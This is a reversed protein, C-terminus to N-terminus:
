VSVSHRALVESCIASFRDTVADIAFHRRAAARARESITGGDAVVRRLAAAMAGAVSEADYRAFFFGAEGAYDATGNTPGLVVPRGAALAEAVSFGFNENESPQVLVHTEGFLEAIRARPLVGDFSVGADRGHREVLDAASPDSALNGVIRARARPHDKKLLRFADLFLDLRKRPVARGLWLFTVEDDGPRLAPVNAFQDLDIPYALTRLGDPDAGFRAWEDRAWRSGCLYVDTSRLSARAVLARYLYFLQVAAYRLAGQHRMARERVVRSRLASAETHPPSQPWSLAPLSSPWVAQADTCLLVDYKARQHESEIQRVAEILYGVHALQSVAALPYPTPLSNGFHWARQLADVRMPFFRYGPYRELSKPETFGRIGFFDVRSGRELLARLLLPFSGAGSGAGDAL